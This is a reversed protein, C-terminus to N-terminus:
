ASRFDTTWGQAVGVEYDLLDPYSPDGRVNGVYASSPVSCGAYIGAHWRRVDDLTLRVRATAAQSALGVVVGINGRM